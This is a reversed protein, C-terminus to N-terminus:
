CVSLPLFPIVYCLSVLVLVFMVTVSAVTKTCDKKINFFTELLHMYLLCNASVHFLICRYIYIYPQM